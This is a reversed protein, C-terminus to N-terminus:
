RAIASRRFGADHLVERKIDSIFYGVVEFFEPTKSKLSNALALLCASKDKKESLADLFNQAIKAANELDVKSLSVYRGSKEKATIESQKEFRKYEADISEDSRYQAIERRMKHGILKYNRGAKVFQGQHKVIRAVDSDSELQGPYADEMYEAIRNVEQQKLNPLAQLVTRKFANRAPRDIWEDKGRRVWLDPTQMMM